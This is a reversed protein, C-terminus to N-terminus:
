TQRDGAEGFLARAAGAEARGEPMQRLPAGAAFKSVQGIRRAAAATM